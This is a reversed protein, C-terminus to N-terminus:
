GAAGVRTAAIRRDLDRLAHLFAEGFTPFPPVVDLLVALPVQARM